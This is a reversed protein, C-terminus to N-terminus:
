CVMLGIASCLFLCMRLGYFHVRALTNVVLDDAEDLAAKIEATRQKKQEAICTNGAVEIKICMRLRNFPFLCTSCKGILVNYISSNGVTFFFGLHMFAIQWVRFFSIYVSLYVEMLLPPSIPPSSATNASMGRLYM